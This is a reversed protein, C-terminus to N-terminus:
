RRTPPRGPPRGSARSAAPPRRGASTGRCSPGSARPPGSSRAPPTPAARSRACCGARSLRERERLAQRNRSWHGAANRGHTGAACCLIDLADGQGQGLHEARLALLGRRQDAEDFLRRRRRSLTDAAQEAGAGSRPEGRRCRCSGTGRSGSRARPFDGNPSVFGGVRGGSRLKQGRGAARIASEAGPTPSLGWGEARLKCSRASRVRGIARRRDADPMRCAGFRSRGSWPYRGTKRSTARLHFGTRAHDAAPLHM